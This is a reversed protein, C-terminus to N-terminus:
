DFLFPGCLASLVVLSVLGHIEHIRKTAALISYLLGQTSQAGKANRAINKKGQTRQTFRANSNKTDCLASHVAIAAFFGM